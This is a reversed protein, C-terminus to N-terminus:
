GEVQALKHELDTRERQLARREHITATRIAAEIQALRARINAAFNNAQDHESM